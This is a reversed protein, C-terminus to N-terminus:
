RVNPLFMWESGDEFGLAAQDRWRSDVAALFRRRTEISYGWRRGVSEGFGRWAHAGLQGDFARHWPGSALREYDVQPTRAFETGLGFGIAWALADRQIFPLADSDLEELTAGRERVAEVAQRPVRDITAAVELAETALSPGLDDLVWRAQEPIAATLGQEPFVADGLARLATRRQLRPQTRLWEAFEQRQRRGETPEKIATPVRDGLAYNFSRLALPRQPRPLTLGGEEQPDPTETTASGWPSRGSATWPDAALLHLSRAGYSQSYIQGTRAMVGPGALVVALGVAVMRGREGAEWCRHVCLAFTLCLLPVLPMLYRLENTQLPIELAYAPVPALLLFVTSFSLILAALGAEFSLM